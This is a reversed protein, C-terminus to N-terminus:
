QQLQKFLSKIENFNLVYFKSELIGLDTMKAIRHKGDLMRYKCNHPNPAETIIGPTKIDCKDYREQLLHNSGIDKGKWAIINHQIINLKNKKLYPIIDTLYLVYEQDNIRWDGYIHCNNCWHRGQLKHFSPM